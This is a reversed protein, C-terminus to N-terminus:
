PPRLAGPVRGSPHQWAGSEFSGCPFMVPVIFGPDVNSGNCSVRRSPHEPYSSSFEFVIPSGCQWLHNFANLMRLMYVTRLGSNSAACLCLANCSDCDTVRLYGSFCDHVLQHELFFRKGAIAAQTSPTPFAVFFPLNLKEQSWHEGTRGICLVRELFIRPARHVEVNTPKINTPM